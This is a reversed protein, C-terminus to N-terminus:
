ATVHLQNEMATAQREGANLAVATKVADYWTLIDTRAVLDDFSDCGEIASLVGYVSQVFVGCYLM